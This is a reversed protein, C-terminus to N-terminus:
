NGNNLSKIAVDPVNTIIGSVNLKAFEKIDKVRDVTFVNVDIGNALCNGIIEGNIARYFPHIASAGIMKAYEWPAYIKEMFLAGTRISDDLKKINVLTYHDFSSVIVRDKIKYEDVLALVKSEIGINNEKIEINLMGRWSSLLTMVQELTPIKEGIFEESFWSGFDFKSLEALTCEKVKGSGDSTREISEDHIVVLEGDITMHVDLEIGGAGSEVAKKFAAMTNEPAQSSAGRHAYIIPTKLTDDEM